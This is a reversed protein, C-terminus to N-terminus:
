LRFFFKLYFVLIYFVQKLDKLRILGAEFRPPLSCYDQWGSRTGKKGKLLIFDKQYTKGTWDLQMSSFGIKKLWM